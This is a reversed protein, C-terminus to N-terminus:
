LFMGIINSSTYLCKIKKRIAIFKMFSLIFCTIFATVFDMGFSELFGFFWYKQSFRYVACFASIYYLFFLGLTFVIIFYIILKIKLKKLKDNILKLYEKNGYNEKMLKMLESKSNSLMKLLNSLLLTALFSYNM